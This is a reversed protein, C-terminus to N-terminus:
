IKVVRGNARTGNPSLWVIYYTGPSEGSLDVAVSERVESLKMVQQGSTNYVYLEGTEESDIHVQTFAATPNPFIRLPGIEPSPQPEQSVLPDALSRRWIAFYDHCYVYGQYILVDFDLADPIEELNGSIDYWVDNLGVSLYVKQYTAMILYNGDYAIRNSGLQLGFENKLNKNIIKFSLGNDTSVAIDPGSCIFLADKCSILKCYMLDSLSELGDGVPIWGVGKDASRYLGLGQRWEFLFDHHGVFFDPITNISSVGGTSLWTEGDDLSERIFGPLSGPGFQRDIRYFRGGTSIFQFETNLPMQQGIPQWNIASTDTRHLVKNNDRAFYHSGHQFYSGFLNKVTLNIPSSWTFGADSSIQKEFALKNGLKYLYPYYLYGGEREIGTSSFYWKEGGDESRAMGHLGASLIINGYQEFSNCSESALDVAFSNWHVGNDSSVLYLWNPNQYIFAILRDNKWTSFKIDSHQLIPKWNQGEDTSLLVENTTSVILTDGRVILSNARIGEHALTWHDGGDMSKLLSDKVAVWLATTSAQLKISSPYVQQPITLIELPPATYNSRNYRFVSSGNNYYIHQQTIIINEAFTSNLPQSNLTQWNLGQDSSKMLGVNSEIAYVDSGEHGLATDFGAMDLSLQWSRGEDESRYIASESQALFIGNCNLINGMRENGPYPMRQWQANLPSLPILLCLFLFSHISRAHNKM